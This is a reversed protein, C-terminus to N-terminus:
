EGHVFEKPTVGKIRKFVQSFASGSSFGSELAVNEIKVDSDEDFIEIAHEIRLTNVLNYFTEYSGRSIVERIYNRNVGMHKALDSMTFHDSLFLKEARLVEMMRAEIEHCKKDTMRFKLTKDVIRGEEEAEMAETLEPRVSRHPNLTYFVFAVNTATLIIDRIMKAVPHNIVFSVYMLTCLSLPFWEIRKAFQIPFDTENSYENEDLELIHRHLRNIFHVLFYFYLASVVSVVVFMVIQYEDSFEIIGFVPLMLALWCIIVPLMFLFLRLPRFKDLFFYGKVMVFSFASFFMVATGNVYFLAAPQGINILYLIEFFQLLCFTAVLRHAPYLEKFQDKFPAPVYFRKMLWGYLNTLIFAFNASYFLIEM